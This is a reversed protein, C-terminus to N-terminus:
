LKWFDGHLGISEFYASLDAKVPRAYDISMKEKYLPVSIRLTQELTLAEGSHDQMVQQWEVLHEKSSFFLMTNSCSIIVDDWWKAAPIALYVLPSSPEAFAVQQNTLEIRINEGCHHCFSEVNVDDRLMVHFAISDWACNAFYSKNGVKVRFPTTIASFPWAMLIRQTGRLLILHRATELQKLVDLADERNLGFKIMIQELVPPTSKELFYDFIYKRVHKPLNEMPVACSVFRPWPMNRKVETHPDLPALM